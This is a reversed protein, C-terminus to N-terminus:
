GLLDYYLDRWDPNNREILNIKWQRNWKKLQKERSIMTHIDDCLEYYVLKHVNYKQTFGEMLKEKHEHVRRILNNTVGIYLPGNKRSALVYVFYRRTLEYGISERRRPFSM